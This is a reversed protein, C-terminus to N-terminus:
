EEEDDHMDDIGSVMKTLTGNKCAEVAESVNKLMNVRFFGATTLKTSFQIADLPVGKLVKTFLTDRGRKGPQYFQAEVLKKTIWGPEWVPIGRRLYGGKIFPEMCIGDFTAQQGHPKYIDTIKVCDFPDEGDEAECHIIAVQGAEADSSPNYLTKSLPPNSTHYLYVGEAPTPVLPNKLADMFGVEETRLKLLSQYADQQRKDSTSPPPPFSKSADDLAQVLCM